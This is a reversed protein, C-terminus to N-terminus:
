ESHHCLFIYLIFVHLFLSFGHIGMQFVFFAFAFMHDYSTYIYIDICMCVVIYLCFSSSFLCVILPVVQKFFTLLGDICQM